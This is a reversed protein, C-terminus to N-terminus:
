WSPSSTNVKWFPSSISPYSFLFVCRARQSMQLQRAKKAKRVM